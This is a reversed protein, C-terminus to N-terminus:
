FEHDDFGGELDQSGSDLVDEELLEDWLDSKGAAQGLDYPELHRGPGALLPWQEVRVNELYEEWWAAQNSAPFPHSYDVEVPLLVSGGPGVHFELRAYCQGGRALIFLVAWETKGFVRAFTEQDKSSPQACSGPHTHVWIRSVRSVSRGADVQRDFYDAVSQDDFAVAAIDCTQRVLGVDEVRLLDEEASIGFGGVETGGADRLYLLKAWATPSFRLSQPPKRPPAQPSPLVEDPQIARRVRPNVTEIM